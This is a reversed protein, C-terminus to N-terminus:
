SALGGLVFMFGETQKLLLLCCLPHCEGVKLARGAAMHGEKVDADVQCTAAAAATATAAHLAPPALLHFADKDSLRGTM